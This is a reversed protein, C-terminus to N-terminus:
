MDFTQAMTNIGRYLMIKWEERKGDSGDIGTNYLVIRPTKTMVSTLLTPPMANCFLKPLHDDTHSCLTKVAIATVLKTVSATKYKLMGPVPRISLENMVTSTM